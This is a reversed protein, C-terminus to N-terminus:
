WNEWEDDKGSQGPASTKSKTGSGGEKTTQNIGNETWFDEYDEERRAVTPSGIPSMGTDIAGPLQVGTHTSVQKGLAKYGAMGTKQV